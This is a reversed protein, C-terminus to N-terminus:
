CTAPRGRTRGVSALLTPFIRVEAGARALPRRLFGEADPLRGLLSSFWGPTCAVMLPRHFFKPNLFYTLPASHESVSETVCVPASLCVCMGHIILVNVNVNITNFEFVDASILCYPIGNCPDTLPKRYVFFLQHSSEPHCM